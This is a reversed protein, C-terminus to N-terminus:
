EYQLTKWHSLYAKKLYKFWFLDHTYETIKRKPDIDKDEAFDENALFLGLTNQSDKSWSAIYNRGYLENLVDLAPQKEGLETYYVVAYNLLENDKYKIIFDFLSDCKIGFNNKVFKNYYKIAQEYEEIAASYQKDNSLDYVEALKEMYVSIPQIEASLSDAQQISINCAKSEKAIQRAKQLSNKANEFDLDAIFRTAAGYQINYDHQKENCKGRNLLGALKNIAETVEENDQLNYQQELGRCKSLGAQAKDLQLAQVFTESQSCIVIIYAAAAKQKKEPLTKDIDIIFSASIKEAENYFALAKRGDGGQSALDGEKILDNYKLQNAQNLLDDYKENKTLHQTVQLKNAKNLLSLASDALQEKIVQETINLLHAYHEKYAQKLLATLKPNCAVFQYKVCIKQANVLNSLASDSQNLKLLSDGKQVFKLHLLRLLEQEKKPNIYYKEGVTRFNMLTDIDIKAQYLEGKDISSQAVQALGNYIGTYILENIEDFEPYRRVGEVGAIYKQCQELKSFAMDTENADIHKKIEDVKVLIITDILQLVNYRTDNDLKKTNMIIACSDLAIDYKKHKFDLHALEYFPPAYSDKKNCSKLFFSKAKDENKWRLHDLGKKYYAEHMNKKTYEIQKKLDRNRVQTKGFHSNFGIPDIVRLNLKSSLRQKKIQDFYKENNQTIRLFENLLELTDTRVKDLEQNLMNLQADADYYTEVAKVFSDFKNFDKQSFYLKIDSLFLKSGEAKSADTIKKKFLDAGSKFKVKNFEEDYLVKGGASQWTAKFSIQTPILLKGIPFKKYDYEGQLVLNSVSSWLTIKTGYQTIKTYEKINYELNLDSMNGGKSELITSLIRNDFTRDRDNKNYSITITNKKGEDQLVSTQQAFVGTVYFFSLLTTLLTIRM